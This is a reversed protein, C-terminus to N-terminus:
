SMSTLIPGWHWSQKKNKLALHRCASVFPGWSMLGGTGLQIFLWNQSKPHDWLSIPSFFFFHCKMKSGNKLDVHFVVFQTYIGQYTFMHLEVFSSSSNFGCISTFILFTNCCCQELLHHLYHNHTGHILLPSGKAKSRIPSHQCTGLNRVNFMFTWTITVQVQGLVSKTSHVPM